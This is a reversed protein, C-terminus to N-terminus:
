DARTTNHNKALGLYKQHLEFVRKKLTEIKGNNEIIDDAYKNRVERSVQSSLMNKALKEDIKDRKKLRELQVIPDSDVVLIRQAVHQLNNEILLPIVWVLYDGKAHTFQKQTEQDILPHLLENLWHREKASNFIKERVISRNINGTIDLIEPGFHTVLETFAPTNKSVVERAIKDADIIPVGLEAFLKEITSKGSAVGGTLAVIFPTVTM